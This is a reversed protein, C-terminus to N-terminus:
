ACKGVLTKAGRQNQSTISKYANSYVIVVNYDYTTKPACTESMRIRYTRKEGPQFYQESDKPVFNGGGPTGSMSISQIIRGDSEVNQIVMTFDKGSESHELIAFPRSEGRWYSASQTAKADGALGPFFGLMAIGAMAAFLVIFILAFIGVVVAILILANKSSDHPPAAPAAAADPAAGGPASEERLQPEPGEQPAQSTSETQWIM